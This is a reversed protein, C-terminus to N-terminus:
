PVCECTVALQLLPISDSDLNLKRSVEESVQVILPTGGPDGPTLVVGPTNAGGGSEGAGGPLLDRSLPAGDAFFSLALALRRGSGQIHGAYACM